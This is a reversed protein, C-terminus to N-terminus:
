ISDQLAGIGSVDVQVAKRFVAKLLNQTALKIEPLAIAAWPVAAKQTSLARPLDSDVKKRESIAVSEDSGKERKVRDAPAIASRTSRLFIRNATL